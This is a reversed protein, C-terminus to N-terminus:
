AASEQLWITEFHPTEHSTDYIVGRVRTGFGILSQNDYLPVAPVLEILRAQAQAYLATLAATDTAERAQELLANLAPDNLRSTNQGGEHFTPIQSGHYNIYLADPTNTHWVGGSMAQYQGAIRQQLLMGTPLAELQLDFGVRRMDSQIEVMVPISTVGVAIAVSAALRTGAKTRYGEADRGTWGAEDLLANAHAPDYALAGAASADYFPTTESLFNAIPRYLGFGAIQAIGSRDMALAAARRVRIDDFPPAAVNFAIARNPCGMRVRNTVALAPNALAAAGAQPPLDITLDYEGSALSFYRVSADPVFEFELRDLYAPGKHGTVPPSWNYDPRRTFSMGLQPMYSDLIFPGSGIPNTNLSLPREKIVKPSEMALWAQALVYLFPSYPAHLTAEFTYEDVVRGSAYPQIYTAALPSKTAPARMHELNLLVAEANFKAGDSFTVDDRLSFTYTKGDPSITWSTALWPAPRGQEDLYVLNDFLLRGIWEVNTAYLAHPDLAGIDLAVSARLTGGPRGPQTERYGGSPLGLPADARAAGAALLAAAGAGGRLFASRTLM